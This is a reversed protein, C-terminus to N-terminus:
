DIEVGILKAVRKLGNKIQLADEKTSVGAYTDRYFKFLPSLIGFVKYDLEKLIDFRQTHNTVIRNTEKKIYYDCITTLSKYYLMTAVNFRGKALEEEAANYCEEFAGLRM